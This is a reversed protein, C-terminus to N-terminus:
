EIDRFLHPCKVDMQRIGPIKLRVQRDEATTYKKLM